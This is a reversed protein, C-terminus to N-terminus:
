AISFYPTDRTWPVDMTLGTQGAAAVGLSATRRNERYFAFEPNTYHVAPSVKMGPKNDLVRAPPAGPFRYDAFPSGGSGGLEDQSLRPKIYVYPTGPILTGIQPLPSTGLTGPAALGKSSFVRIGANGRETGPRQAVMGGLAWPMGRSVPRVAM